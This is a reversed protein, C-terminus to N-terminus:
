TPENNLQNQFRQFTEAREPLRKVVRSWGMDERRHPKKEEISCIRVVRSPVKKKIM